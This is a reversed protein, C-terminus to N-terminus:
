TSSRAIESNIIRAARIADLKDSTIIGGPLAWATGWKGLPGFATTVPITAHEHVVDGPHPTSTTRPETM